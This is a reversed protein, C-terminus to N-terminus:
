GSKLRLRRSQWIDSVNQWREPDKDKQAAYRMGLYEFWPPYVRSFGWDVIWLVHHDELLLNPTFGLFAFGSTGLPECNPPPAWGRSARYEALSHEKWFFLRSPPSQQSIARVMRMMHGFQLGNCPSPTPGPPGPAELFVTLALRGPPQRTAATKFASTTISLVFAYNDNHKL